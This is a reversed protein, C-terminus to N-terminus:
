PMENSPENADIPDIPVKQTLPNNKIKVKKTNVQSTTLSPVHKGTMELNYAHM